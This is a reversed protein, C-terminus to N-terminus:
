VFLNNFTELSVCIHGIIASEFVSKTFFQGSEGQLGKIGM